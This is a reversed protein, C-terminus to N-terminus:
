ELKYDDSPDHLESSLCILTSGECLAITHLTNRLILFSRPAILVLTSQLKTNMDMTQLIGRGRVLLFLEDKNKHYHDGLTCDQKVEIYKCVKWNGGQGFEYLTRRLDEHVLKLEM